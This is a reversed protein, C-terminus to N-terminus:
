VNAKLFSEQPANASEMSLILEWQAPLRAHVKSSTSDASALLAHALVMVPLALTLATPASEEELLSQLTLALQVSTSLLALLADLGVTSVNRRTTTSSNSPKIM